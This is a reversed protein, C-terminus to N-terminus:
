NNAKGFRAFTEAQIEPCLPGAEPAFAHVAPTAFQAIAVAADRDVAEAFAAAEAAAVASVVGAPAGAVFAEPSPSTLEL